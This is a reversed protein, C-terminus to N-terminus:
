VRRRDKGTRRYYEDKDAYMLKNLSIEVISVFIINQLFFRGILLIHERFREDTDKWFGM